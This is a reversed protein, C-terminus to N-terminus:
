KGHTPQKHFNYGKNTRNNEVYIYIYIHVKIDEDGSKLAQTFLRKLMIGGMSFAVFIVPKYGVKAEILGTRLRDSLQNFTYHPVNNEEHLPAINFCEYNYSLLRPNLHKIDERLYKDPWLEQIEDIRNYREIKDNDYLIRWVLLPHSQQGPIFIIDHKYSNDASLKMTEADLPLILDSYIPQESEAEGREKRLKSYFYKMANAKKLSMPEEEWVRLKSELFSFYEEPIKSLNNTEILIGLLRAIGEEFVHFKFSIQKNIPTLEDGLNLFDVIQTFFQHDLTKELEENYSALGKNLYTLLLIQEEIQKDIGVNKRLQQFINYFLKNKQENYENDLNKNYPRNNVKKRQNILIYINHM